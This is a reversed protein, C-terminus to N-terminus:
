DTLLLRGTIASKILNSMQMKILAIKQPEKDIKDTLSIITHIPINEEAAYKCLFVWPTPKPVRDKFIRSAEEKKGKARERRVAAVDEPTLTLRDAPVWKERGGKKGDCICVMHDRVAGVYWIKSNHIVKQNLQVIM